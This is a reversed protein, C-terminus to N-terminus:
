PGLSAKMARARTNGPDYELCREAYELGREVDGAVGTAIALGCVLPARQAPRESLALGAEFVAAAEVPRGLALWAEGTEGANRSQWVSDLSMRLEPTLGRTPVRERARRMYVSLLSRAAEVAFPGAEPPSVVRPPHFELSPRDDTIATSGRVWDRVGDPGLAFLGALDAPSQVGLAALDHALAPEQLARQVSPWDIAIEQGRAIILGTGSHLWLTTEPFVDQVTRVISRAEEYTVLHFPLWQVLLGAPELRDRALVYYERSYLNVVGAHTPPMPESTIVDYRERTRLLYNRGDDEILRARPDEHVGHNTEGFLPAFDLVTKNIDVADVTVGPHLLVSGATSGTGFCIVLVRQAQGHLLLPLHSMMPMYGAGPARSDAAAEFGNIRLAPVGPDTLVVSVSATVDDRHAIVVASGWADGGAGRYPSANRRDFPSPGPLAQAFLLAAGAVIAVGLTGGSALRLVKRRRTESREGHTSSLLALGLTLQLGALALLCGKLSLMPLLVFGTLISGTVSGLTNVWYASGIRRGSSQLDDVLLRSCLPFVVGMLTAPLLMVALGVLASGGLQWEVSPSWRSLLRAMLAPLTAALPVLALATGAALFQVATLTSVGGLRRDLKPFLASGLALGLLFIVLILTFAYVTSGFSFALVRTWAVEYGMTLFGSFALTVWLLRRQVPPTAKPAGSEQTPMGSITAEPQWGAVFLAALGVSLNVLAALALTGSVGLSRIFVFGTLASGLVAGSLNIAYLRGLDRGFSDESRSVVRLLVPLTGGMLVTPFLLMLAALGMRLAMLSTGSAAEPLVSAYARSILSLLHPQVLAFAGIGLELAAYWRVLQRGRDALPGFLWAGLALGGIFVALVTSVAPTTAGSLLTLQRTWVIEYTLASLGSLLFFLHLLVPMAKAVFPAAPPTLL